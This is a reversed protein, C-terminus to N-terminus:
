QNKEEEKIEEESKGFFRNIENFHTKERNAQYKNLQYKFDFLESILIKGKHRLVDFEQQLEQIEDFEGKGSWLNAHEYGFSDSIKQIDVIMTCIKKDLEYLAFIRNNKAM